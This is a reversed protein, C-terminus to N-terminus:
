SIEVLKWSIESMKLCLWLTKFNEAAKLYKGLFKTLNWFIQTIKPIKLFNWYNETIEWKKKCHCRQGFGCRETRDCWGVGKLLRVVNSILGLTRELYYYEEVVETKKRKMWQVIASQPNIWEGIWVFSSIIWILRYYIKKGKVCNFEVSLINILM